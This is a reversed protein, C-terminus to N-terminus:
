SCSIVMVLDHEFSQGPGAASLLGLLRVAVSAGQRRASFAMSHAMDILGPRPLRPSRASQNYNYHDYCLKHIRIIHNM